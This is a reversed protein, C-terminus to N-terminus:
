KSRDGKPAIPPPPHSHSLSSEHSEYSQASAERYLEQVGPLDKSQRMLQVLRQMVMGPPQSGTVLAIKARLLEALPEGAVGALAREAGVTDGAEILQDIGAFPEPLALNAM